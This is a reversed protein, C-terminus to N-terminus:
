PTWASYVAAGTVGQARVRYEYPVGHVAKRDPWQAGSALGTALPEGDTGDGVVRRYLDQFALAPQGGGPTPNTISVMIQGAGHDAAVVLTPVAPEVYDVTFVAADPASALGETNRTFLETRWNSGDPLPILVTYTRDGALTRWGSDHEVLSPDVLLAEDIYLLNGAAPTGAMDIAFQQTVTGAPAIAEHEVYTWTNAAVAKVNVADAGALNVAGSDLFRFKLNVDRAVACRVWCQVRYRQGAQAAFSDSRIQVTADVGSPTILASAVGTHFQATSRTLVGGFGTWGTVNTEFYPNPLLNASTQYFRIRYATQEAVTWQLQVTDTTVTGGDAPSDLTPNVKVSPVVMFAPGYDSAADSQDWVKARFATAADSGSGWGIPLRIASTGSNNKVEAVQWTSDSARWYNLAGAGIQRSLAYDKQTDAPDADTFFWDLALTADVDAAAGSSGMVSTDWDPASPTFTLTQATHVVTNPSPTAHATVVDYRANGFSSRRVSYQNVGLIDTTSVAAWSSWVGTAAVRDVYYLDNDSTGVAFVRVDGSVSNWSLTCHKVVGAPHIPTETTIDNKSNSVARIYLLCRTNATPHPTVIHFKSGTWRAAMLTQATGAADTSVKVPTTPSTWRWGWGCKIAWVHNQGWSVWLNPVSGGSKGDGNHEADISPVLVGTDAEPLWQRPGVFVGENSYAAVGDTGIRVGYLTIGQNAGIQTGAAIAVFEQGQTVHVWLDLGTHVAGAVGGNGPRGTLVETSWTANTLNLRRWYIRDQSGENTRYCWHLWNVNTVFISGIESVSTRTTSVYLAWSGGGNTSRYVDYTNATSGKVMAFLHGTLPNRDILTTVPWQLPTAQTTSAVTAV